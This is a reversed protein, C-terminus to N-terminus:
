RSATTPPAPSCPPLREPYHLDPHRYTMAALGQLRVNLKRHAANAEPMLIGLMYGQWPFNFDRASFMTYTGGTVAVMREILHIQREPSRWLYNGGVLSPPRRLMVFLRTGTKAYLKEVEEGSHDSGDDYGDTIVLVADGPQHTGFLELGQRLADYLHVEKGLQSDEEAVESIAAARERAETMFGRTFAARKVFVGFALPKGEPAQRVLKIAMTVVDEINENGTGDTELLVLLRDNFHPTASVIDANSKGLKADFDGANLNPINNGTKHDFASVVVYSTCSQAAARASLFLSVFLFVAVGLVFAANVGIDGGASFAKQCIRVSKTRVRQAVVRKM